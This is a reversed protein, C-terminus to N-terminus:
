AEAVTNEVPDAPELAAASYGDPRIGIDADRQRFFEPRQIIRLPQAIVGAGRQGCRLFGGAATQKLRDVGTAGRRRRAVIAREGDALEGVHHCQVALSHIEDASGAVANEIAIYEGSIIAHHFIDPRGAAV